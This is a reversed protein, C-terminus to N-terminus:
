RGYADWAARDGGFVNLDIFPEVGDYGALRYRDGFQWFTWARGDSLTPEKWVDRIWIDNAPFQGALYPDYAEVTAYLIPAKGYHEALRTLLEGLERRVDSAPAPNTWFDGYYEVDVVVPLLDARAPVTRIVNDAQTAGPSEFSFFHYAGARLGAATAGALNDAFFADVSGSGETAKIFAFDIDQRGLVAWDITGQYRSVDVGRVPYRRAWPDAVHLVGAWLLGGVSAVLALVLVGVAIVWRLRRSPAPRPHRPHPASM